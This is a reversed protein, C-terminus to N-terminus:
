NWCNVLVTMGMAVRTMEVPALASGGTAFQTTIGAADLLARIAESDAAFSVNDPLQRGTNTDALLMGLVAGQSDLVPGGADGPLADLTLRTLDPEGSLGTVDAVTGFTLTPAGLVGAYSFGSVAVQSQLRGKSPRLQAVSMPALREGPQLIAVGLTADSVLVDARLDDDLTIRTCNQAADATTVVTGTGDIFFGSRSLRPKRVALGAVLDVSQVADGAAPDLVGSLRSFSDQMAALIRSRRADDGAPWVLMFGKIEGDELRAEAHTVLGKGRGEIVFRDRSRDRPGDLPVIELTQLIDYLGFLTAQTGPQSILFVQAGLDTTAEYKAFPPEIGSFAVAGSPMDLEIGAATDRVRRMGVSILPANFQDMLTKRQKTTLVGTAEYGNSQQWESMSRRTGAGFAGDITSRYFGAAQLARQLDLREASTLLREGRRAQAPTEDAPALTRPVADTVQPQPVAAPATIVGRNLVNAGEPWYQAGLNRSFALFSDGPILRDRRYSRLVREADERLYPGLLIGYWSGGLSFGNVDALRASFDEARQRAVTLNPHAEIQVWVVDQGSQQASGPGVAGLIAVVLVAFLRRIM